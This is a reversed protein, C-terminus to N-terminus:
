SFVLAVPLKHFDTLYNQMLCLLQDLFGSQPRQIGQMDGRDKGKLGGGTQHDREDGRILPLALYGLLKRHVDYPDFLSGVRSM